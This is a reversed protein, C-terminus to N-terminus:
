ISKRNSRSGLYNQINLVSTVLITVYTIVQNMRVLHDSCVRFGLDLSRHALYFCETVFNYSSATPREVTSDNIDDDTTLPILCTEENLQRM